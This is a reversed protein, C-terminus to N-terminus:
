RNGQPLKQVKCRQLRVWRGIEVPCDVRHERMGQAELALHGDVDHLHQLVAVGHREDRAVALLPRLVHLGLLQVRHLIFKVLEPSAQRAHATRGEARFIQFGTM